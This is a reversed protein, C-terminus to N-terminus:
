KFINTINIYFTRAFFVITLICAFAAIILMLILPVSSAIGFNSWDTTFIKFLGLGGVFMFFTSISLAFARLIREYISETM